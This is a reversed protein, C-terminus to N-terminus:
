MLEQRIYPPNGIIADFELPLTMRDNALQCSASSRLSEGPQIDFFNARAVRVDTRAALKIASSSRDVGFVETSRRARKAPTSLQRKLKLAEALLRGDGCSPDFVLDGARRVAFAALLKAVETPTYHVGYRHKEDQKM